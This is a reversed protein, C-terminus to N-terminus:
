PASQPTTSPFHFPFRAESGRKCPGLPLSQGLDDQDTADVKIVQGTRAATLCPGEDARIQEDDIRQAVECSAARTTITGHNTVSVGCGDRAPISVVALEAVRRMAVDLDDETLLLRSLEAIGCRVEDPTM